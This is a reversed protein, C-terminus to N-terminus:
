KTESKVKIKQVKLIDDARKGQVVVRWNSQIGAKGILERVKRNGNEDFRLYENSGTLLGYGSRECAPMQLCQTTHKRGLDTETAKRERACEGDLLYGSWSQPTASGAQTGAAERVGIGLIFTIVILLIISPLARYPTRGTNTEM